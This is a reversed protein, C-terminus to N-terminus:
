QPREFPCWPEPTPCSYRDCVYPHALNEAILTDGVDEGDVTLAGCAVGGDCAATGQTGPRCACAVPQLDVAEGFRIIQRLRSTARAALMRELGCHARGGLAPAEFGVLRIKRDRVIITDGNVVYVDAPSVPEGRCITISLMLAACAAACWKM